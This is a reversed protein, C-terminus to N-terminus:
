QIGHVLESGNAASLSHKPPLSIADVCTIDKAMVQWKHNIPFHTALLKGYAECSFKGPSTQPFQDLEGERYGLCKSLKLQHWGQLLSM